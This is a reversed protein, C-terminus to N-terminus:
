AATRVMVAVRAQPSSGAQCAAFSDMVGSRCRSRRMRRRRIRTVACIAMERITRELPKRNKLFRNRDVAILMVDDFVQQDATADPYTEIEVLVLTPQPEDPYWVELVLSRDYRITPGGSKTRLIDPRNKDTVTITRVGVAHAGFAALEPAMPTVMDIRNDQAAARQTLATCMSFALVAVHRRLMVDRRM